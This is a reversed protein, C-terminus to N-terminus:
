SAPRRHAVLVCVDDRQGVPRLARVIEAAAGRAPQALHSAAEDLLRRLGVDLSEGRREIIGDTYLIVTGGEPVTTSASERESVPITTADLPTSRGGWAITATGDADVIVPPPHGACAFCLTGTRLDLDGYVVTAMRGLDHRACFRDLALLLPGPELGTLALARIASRLQGMTAASEIGRGVVDGVVLAVRDPEDLWFADYWDGGVDTGEVASGYGYGVDLRDTAPLEGALLSDQLQQAIEQEQRQAALLEREYRRRDTADFVTTRVVREDDNGEDHVVSNVLAPLRTGDARLIEFAIESVSGHMALAPAYHTEHYLKSGPTLLDRFRRQEVLDERRWGTLTEFTRNVLLVTGDMRALVYGCPADEFLEEANQLFVGAAFSM